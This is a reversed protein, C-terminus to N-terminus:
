KRVWVNKIEGFVLKHYENTETHADIIFQRADETLFDDPSVTTVEFLDLEIIIKAEKYSMNGSPTEVATLTTNTMKKNSDRGSSMGFKVIEDQYERDFFSMTYRNEKRILELTYRNSRLMSFVVQKNFLIGWGGWSAVMSNYHDPTGATLVSYDQNILTFIDEEVENADITKFLDEFSAAKIQESTLKDVPTVDGAEGTQAKGSNEKCGILALLSICLLTLVINKM